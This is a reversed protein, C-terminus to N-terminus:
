HSYDESIERILILLLIFNRFLHIISIQQFRIQLIRASNCVVHGQLHACGTAERM